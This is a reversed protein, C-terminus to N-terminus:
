GAAGSGGAPTSGASAKNGKPKKNDWSEDKLLAFVSEPALVTADAGSGEHAAVTARLAQVADSEGEKPEGLSDVADRLSKIKVSKFM